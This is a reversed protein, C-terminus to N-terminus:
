VEEHGGVDGLRSRGDEQRRGKKDGPDCDTVGRGTVGSQYLEIMSKEVAIQM